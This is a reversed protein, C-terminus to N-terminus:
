RKLGVSEAAALLRERLEGVSGSSTPAALIRLVWGDGAELCLWENAAGAGDPVPAALAAQLRAEDFLAAADAKGSLTQRGVATTHTPAPVTASVSGDRGVVVAGQWGVRVLRISAVAAPTPPARKAGAAIVADAESAHKERLHRDFAERTGDGSFGCLCSSPHCARYHALMGSEGAAGIGASHDCGIYYCRGPEPCGPPCLGGGGTVPVPDPAEHRPSVAVDNRASDTVPAERRECGSLALTLGLAIALRRIRTM